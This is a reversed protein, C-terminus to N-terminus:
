GMDDAEIWTNRARMKEIGAIQYPRLPQDIHTLMVEKKRNEM